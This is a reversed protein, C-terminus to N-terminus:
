LVTVEETCREAGQDGKAVGLHIRNCRLVCRCEGFVHHPGEAVSQDYRTALLQPGLCKKHCVRGNSNVTMLPQHDMGLKRSISIDGLHLM